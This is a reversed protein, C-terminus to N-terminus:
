CFKLVLVRGCLIEFKRFHLHIRPGATGNLLASALDQSQAFCIVFLACVYTYTHVHAHLIYGRPQLLPLQRNIFPSWGAGLSDEHQEM